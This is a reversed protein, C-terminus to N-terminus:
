EQLLAEYVVVLQKHLCNGPKVMVAIDLSVVM